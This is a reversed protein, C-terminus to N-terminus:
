AEADSGAGELSYTLHTNVDIAAEILEQLLRETAKRKYIDGIYDVRSIRAGLSDRLYVAVDIDRFDESNNHGM